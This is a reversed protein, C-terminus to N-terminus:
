RQNLKLNKIQALTSYNEKRFADAKYVKLIFFFKSYIFVKTIVSFTDNAPAM